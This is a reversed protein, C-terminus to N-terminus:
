AALGLEAVFSVMEELVEARAQYHPVHACGAVLCRRWPGKVLACISDLQRVTGFEDETGQIALVPSVVTAVKDEINWNRFAPDLWTEYWARFVQETKKGHYRELRQRMDSCNWREKAKRIGALTEEEVYLHAAESIVASVREPCSAAFLLALTAGDSHGVLVAKEIHYRDLVAKLCVVERALYDLGRSVQLPQSNGFGCRDYLLAPLSCRSVLAEPFDRWQAVSGLAEHLFVLTPSSKKVGIPTLKRINLKEGDVTAMSTIEDIQM